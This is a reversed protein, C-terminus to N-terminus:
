ESIAPLNSLETLISLFERLESSGSMSRQLEELNAKFVDPLHRPNLPLRHEEYALLLRGDEFLLQLKGEELVKGYQNGLIPLLVKNKLEAKVPSWDIDFFRAFPSSPGNELVDHWWPNNVPDIGMHNPVFDLLHGIGYQQLSESFRDYDQESGLDPNLVHHDTIDYGHTSGPRAKLLPSTYCDGVGLRSLYSLILTAERFGFQHHMQLRYTSIPIRRGSAGTMRTVRGLQPAQLNPM